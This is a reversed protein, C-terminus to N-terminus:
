RLSTTAEAQADPALTWGWNPGIIAGRYRTGQWYNRIWLSFSGRPRNTLIGMM